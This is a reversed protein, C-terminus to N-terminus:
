RTAKGVIGVGKRPLTIQVLARNASVFLRVNWKKVIRLLLAM